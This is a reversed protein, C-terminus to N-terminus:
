VLSSALVYFVNISFESGPLLSLNSTGNQMTVIASYRGPLWDWDLLTEQSGGSALFSSVEIEIIPQFSVHM